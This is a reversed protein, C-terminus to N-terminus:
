APGTGRQLADLREVQGRRVQDLVLKPIHWNAEEDTTTTCHQQILQYMMKFADRPQRMQDLADVVDQRTVTDDFLDILSIETGGSHCAKLRKACLDYLTTGSWTLRDVLNQKDMRAEQFFERSQRHLEHRLEIPLMMKLAFHDLQLFKNNFLPWVLAKMRQTEGSVLTPEDIRDILVVVNTYGFPAIGALLDDLLRYRTDDLDDTPLPLADLLSWPTRSLALRFGLASRDVVRLQRALRRSRRWVWLFDVLVRLTVAAALGGTGWLGLTEAWSRTEDAAFARVLLLAIFLVWLIGAVGKLTRTWTPAWLRLARRLLRGREVHRDARDYLLQLAVWGRKAEPELRKLTEAPRSGLDISSSGPRLAADVLSPVASALIGDIHDVLRLRQLAEGVSRDGHSRVYHDLIPNLDDYAVILTRADPRRQNYDRIAEEIQLRIATKGAGKEGFVIATAPRGPDGLIKDFDPHKSESHAASDTGGESLLAFVHDQRAEEALFPNERINWHELFTSVNM